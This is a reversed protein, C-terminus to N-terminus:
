RGGCERLVKWMVEMNRDTEQKEHDQLDEVEEPRSAPGAGCTAPGPPAPLCAPLHLVCCADGLPALWPAEAATCSHLHVEAPPSEWASWTPGLQQSEAAVFLSSCGLM